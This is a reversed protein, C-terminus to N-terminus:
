NCEPKFHKHGEADFTYPVKCDVKAAASAPAVAPPPTLAASSAPPAPIAGRRPPKAADRPAAAVLAHTPDSAPTASTSPSASASGLTSTAAVPLPPSAAEPGPAHAVDTPVLGAAAGTASDPHARGAVSAGFYAALGIGGLLALAAVALM